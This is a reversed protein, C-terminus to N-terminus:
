CMVIEGGLASLPAMMGTLTQLDEKANGAPRKAAARRLTQLATLLIEPLTDIAVRLQTTSAAGQLTDALIM